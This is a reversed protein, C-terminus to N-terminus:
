GFMDYSYINIKGDSNKIVEVWYKVEEIGWQLKLHLEYKAYDKIVQM